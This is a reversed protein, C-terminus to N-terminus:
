SLIAILEIFARAWRHTALTLASAFAACKEGPGGIQEIIEWPFCQGAEAHSKRTHRAHGVAQPGAGGRARKTSKRDWWAAGSSGPGDATMKLLREGIAGPNNPIHPARLSAALEM